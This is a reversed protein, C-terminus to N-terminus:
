RGLLIGGRGLLKFPIELLCEFTLSRLHLLASLLLRDLQALLQLHLMMKLLLLLLLRRRRRLRVIVQLRHDPM